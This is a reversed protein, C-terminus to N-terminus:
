RCHFSIPQFSSPAFTPLATLQDSVWESGREGVRKSQRYRRRQPFMVFSLSHLFHSPLPVSPVHLPNPHFLSWCFRGGRVWGGGVLPLSKLRQPSSSLQPPPPMLFPAELARKLWTYVTYSHIFTYVHGSPFTCCVCVCRLICICPFNSKTKIENTKRRLTKNPHPPPRPQIQMAIVQTTITGQCYLLWRKTGQNITLLFYVCTRWRSLTWEVWFFLLKPSSVFPETQHIYM